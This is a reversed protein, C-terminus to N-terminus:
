VVSKRDSVVVCSMGGGVIKELREDRKEGEKKGLATFSDCRLM